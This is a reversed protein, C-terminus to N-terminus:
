DNIQNVINEVIACMHTWKEEISQVLKLQNRARRLNQNRYHVKFYIDGSLYDTLFRVGCELTMIKAGMPLMLKEQESLMNNTHQLFGETYALFMPLSLECKDLDAEDEESTNAGFRIADGFDHVALGPMITDLDIVCVWKNTDADFLVNNLKTDNHTVRVPLEGRKQMNCLKSAETERKFVDELECEVEKARGYVDAQLAARLQQYRLPTDHFGPITINLKECPYEGLLSGFKGFARASESFIEPSHPLEFTNTNEVFLYVRWYDENDDFFYNDGDRTPILNLVERQVDGCRELVKNKIYATVGAINEVVKDPRSFVHKNIRQLIYRPAKEKMTVLYTDNIHGNGYPSIKEAEGAVEFNRIVNAACVDMKNGM